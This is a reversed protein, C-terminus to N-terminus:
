KSYKVKRREAEIRKIYVACKESYAAHNVNLKLNYKENAVVCNVCTEREVDCKSFDHKGACRKCSQSNTCNTSKHNYGNCKFCRFVNLDEIVKCNSWIVKVRKIKMCEEFSVADLEIIATFNNRKTKFSNIVKMESNKLFDNQERLASVLEDENLEQNIDTIKVKPNKLEPVTIVYKDSMKENAVKHVEKSEDIGNCEIAIGGKPVKRLKNIKLKTPDIM